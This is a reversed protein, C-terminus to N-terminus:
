HLYRWLYVAGIVVLGIVIGVTRLRGLKEHWGNM